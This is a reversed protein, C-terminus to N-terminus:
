WLLYLIKSFGFNIFSLLLSPIVSTRLLPKFIVVEIIEVESELDEEFLRVQPGTTLFDANLAEVVAQVDMESISQMGYPIM